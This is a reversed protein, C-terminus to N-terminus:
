TCMICVHVSFVAHCCLYVMYLHWMACACMHAYMLLFMNYVHQLLKDPQTADSLTRKRIDGVLSKRQFVLCKPLKSSGEDTTFAAALQRFTQYEFFVKQQHNGCSFGSYQICAHSCM